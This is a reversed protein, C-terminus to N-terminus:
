KRNTLFSYISYSTAILALLVLVWNVTTRKEVKTVTNTVTRVVENTVTDISTTIVAYPVKEYKIVVSGPKTPVDPYPITNEMWIITDKYVVVIMSDNIRYSSDSYDTFVLVTDVSVTEVNTFVPNTPIPQNKNFLGCSSCLVLLFFFFIHKM